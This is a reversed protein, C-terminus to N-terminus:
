ANEIGGKQPTDARKLIAMLGFEMALSLLIVTWTWAFMEPTMIYLKATAIETGITSPPM